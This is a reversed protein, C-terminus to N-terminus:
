RLAQPIWPVFAALPGTTLWVRSAMWGQAIGEHQIAPTAMQVSEIDGM